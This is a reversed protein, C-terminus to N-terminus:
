HCAPVNGSDEAYEVMFDELHKAKKAYRSGTFYAVSEKAKESKVHLGALKEGKNSLLETWEDITHSAAVPQGGGHCERCKKMYEKQGKYSAANAVSYFTISLTFIVLLFKNM